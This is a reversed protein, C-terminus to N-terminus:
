AAEMECYDERGNLQRVIEFWVDWLMEGNFAPDHQLCLDAVAEVAQPAALDHWVAKAFAAAVSQSRNWVHWDLDAVCAQWEAFRNQHPHHIRILNMSQNPLPNISNIPKTKM